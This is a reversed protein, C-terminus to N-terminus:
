IKGDDKNHDESKIVKQKLIPKGQFDKRHLDVKPKDPKEESISEHSLERVLQHRQSEEFNDAWKIKARMRASQSISTM